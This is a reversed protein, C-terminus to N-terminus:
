AAGLRAEGTGVLGLSTVDNRPQLDAGAESALGGSDGTVVYRDLAADPPAPDVYRSWADAFDARGYCREPMGAVRHLGPRICYPRLRGALGQTTLARGNLDGWPSEEQACLQRVLEASPIREDPWVALVDRIDALLRVGRSEDDAARDGSLAVAARRARTPWEGGAADAIALLPEWGDAARDDLDGPIDPRRGDLDLGALAEILAERIPAAEPEADRRRYRALAESPARRRLEILISRDRLTDPITGIGAFAKPGFADFEVLRRERGNM